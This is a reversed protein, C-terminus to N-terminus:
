AVFSGRTRALGLCCAGNQGLNTSNRLVQLAPYRQELSDIVSVSIDTSANDVILCEINPYNQEMISVVCTELFRGYNYNVVIFSLLPLKAPARSAAPSQEADPMERAAGVESLCFAEGDQPEAPASSILKAVDM